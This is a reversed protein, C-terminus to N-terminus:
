KAPETKSWYYTGDSNKLFTHVYTKIKDSYNLRINDYNSLNNVKEYNDFYTETHKINSYGIRGELWVYKTSVELRDEYEIAKLIYSYSEIGIPKEGIFICKFVPSSYTCIYGDLTDFSEYYFNSNSGFIQKYANLMKSFSIEYMTLVVGNKMAFNQSNCQFEVIQDNLESCSVRKGELLSSNIYHYLMITAKQEKLLSDATVVGESYISVIKPDIYINEYAFLHNFTAVKPDSLNIEKSDVTSSSSPKDEKKSSSYNDNANNDYKANLGRFYFFAIFFVFISIIMILVRYPNVGNKDFPLANNEKAKQIEKNEEKM